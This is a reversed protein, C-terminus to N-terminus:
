GSLRAAIADYLTKPRQEAAPPSTFEAGGRAPGAPAAALKPNATVAAEVAAQIATTDNPDLGDLSAAFTRSDLLADADGGAAAAHRYVALEVATQRAQAQAATLQQTLQAPDAEQGEPVIGLARGIDQALQTRADDAARQKATVRSKGAEARAAALESELRAIQAVSDEGQQQGEGTPPAAPPTPKPATTPDQGGEGAPAGQQQGTNGNDDSM